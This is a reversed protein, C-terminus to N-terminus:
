KDKIVYAKGCVKCQKVGSPRFSRKSDHSHRGYLACLLGNCIPCRKTNEITIVDGRLEKLQTRPVIKGPTLILKGKDIEWILISGEELDLEALAKRPIRIRNGETITLTGSWGM